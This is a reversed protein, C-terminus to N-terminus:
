DVVDTKQGPLNRAHSANVLLVEFGYSELIQFLPIWYVGTSEMVVSKSQCLKLWRAIEHLDETYAGFCRVTTSDRDPRVSVYMQESGVDIGVADPNVVQFGETQDKLVKIVKRRLRQSKSKPLKMKNM